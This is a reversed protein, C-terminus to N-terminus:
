VQEFVGAALLGDFHAEIQGPLKGGTILMGLEMNTSFAYETLNASSLFLKRGDGVICKVHLIGVKGSIHQTRKDQPWYHISSCAAVDEGLARLTDYEGAGEIRDPTEVLVTIHVGRAAARVLADRVNPIRYVAYCVLVLRRAASDLVELIAQETRRLPVTDSDPGTWVLEVSQSERHRKEAWAATRLAVAVAKVSSVPVCAQGQGILRALLSRHHAHPINSLREKADTLDVAADLIDAAGQATSFPLESAVVCAVESIIDRDSTM